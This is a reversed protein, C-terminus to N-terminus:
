GLFGIWISVTRYLAPAVVHGSKRMIWGLVLAQLFTMVLLILTTELPLTNYWAPLHWLASLAATLPIGVWPGLWWALRLQIYGRFITEEALSIGLAFLLPLFRDSALGGLLPMVQNRLFVTLIAIAFGMQLAAGLLKPNWGTSRVPQRRVALAILFPLLCAGAVMLAQIQSHVPGPVLRLPDPFVPPNTSYFIVAFVFIVAYLSLAVLGDRRAYKFGLVPAQFRPSTSLLWAVAVAGLWESLFAAYYRFDM